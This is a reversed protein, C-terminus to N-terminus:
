HHILEAIVLVAVVFLIVSAAYAALSAIQGVLYVAAALAINRRSAAGSSPGPPSVLPEARVAPTPTAMTSVARESRTPPITTFRRSEADERSFAVARLEPSVLVLEPSLPELETNAM